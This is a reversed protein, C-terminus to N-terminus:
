SILCADGCVHVDPSLMQYNDKIRPCHISCFEVSTIQPFLYSELVYIRSGVYGM